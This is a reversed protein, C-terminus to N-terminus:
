VQFDSMTYNQLSSESQNPTWENEYDELEDKLITLITNWIIALAWVFQLMIESQQKMSMFIDESVEYLDYFIWTTSLIKFCKKNVM